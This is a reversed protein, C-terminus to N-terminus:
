SAFAHQFDRYSAFGDNDASVKPRPAYASMAESHMRDLWWQNAQCFWSLQFDEGGKQGGYQFFIWKLILGADGKYMTRLRRMQGRAKGDMYLRHGLRAKAMAQIYPLMDDLSFKEARHGLLKEGEDMESFHEM